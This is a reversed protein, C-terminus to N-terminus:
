LTVGTRQAVWREVSALQSATLAKGVIIGGYDLGNYPLDAGNRRGFYFVANAFNSASSPQSNQQTLVGNVRLGVTHVSLDAYGTFVGTVPATTVFEAGATITASNASFRIRDLTGLPAQLDFASFGTGNHAFVQACAAFSLARIGSVATVKNTATFDVAATLLFDDVGDFQLGYPATVADASVDRVDVNDVTASNAGNNCQFIFNGNSITHTFYFEKRGTTTFSAKVAGTDDWINLTGTIADIDFSARYWRGSVLNANQFLFASGTAGNVVGKGGSVSSSGTVLWGTSGDFGGNTIRNGGTPTGRLIPKSGTTTQYRHNGPLERISINTISGAGGLYFDVGRTGSGALIYFTIRGSSSTTAGPGGRVYVTISSTGTKDFQVRYWKGTTYAAVSDRLGDATSGTASASGGSITWGTGVTWGTSGNSFDGNTVLESGLVLGQSKDLQLGVLGNVTAPITGASDLYFTSLDNNDYLVGKSGDSFLTAPNFSGFLEGGIAEVLPRVLPQTLSSVFPSIM